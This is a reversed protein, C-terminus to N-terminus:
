DIWPADMVQDIPFKDFETPHLDGVNRPLEPQPKHDAPPATDQDLWPSGLVQPATGEEIPNPRPISM